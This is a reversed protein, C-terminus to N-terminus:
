FIDQVFIVLVHMYVLLNSLLELGEKTRQQLYKLIQLIYLICYLNWFTVRLVVFFLILWWVIKVLKGIAM